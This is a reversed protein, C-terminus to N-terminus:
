QIGYYTMWDLNFCDQLIVGPTHISEYIELDTSYWSFIRTEQDTTLVPKEIRASNINPMPLSFGVEIAGDDLHDPFRYLKTTPTLWLYQPIFHPNQAIDIQKGRNNIIKNNQELGLLTNEVDTFGLQVMASLFRSLPDRIFALVTKSPKDEAKALWQFQWNDPSRGEPYIGSQAIIEDEPQFAKVVARSITSCGSKPIFAVSYKPTIFYKPM